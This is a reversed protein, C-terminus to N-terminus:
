YSYPVTTDEPGLNNGDLIFQVGVVGIDDSANASVIIIGSVTSGGTPATLTVAPPNTDPSAAKFDATMINGSNSINEVGVGSPGTYGDSNPSSTANFSRNNASGPYPDGTDGYDAVINTSKELEWLNDAQILAVKYHNAPNQGPFWEQRNDPKSEDIHWILLGEGPLYEDYTLPLKQRNEILFYESGPNGNTWLKFIQAGMQEANPISVGTQNASIVTPTNFGLQIKSWADLHAPQSGRVGNWLGNAMLSWAGVGKSSYDPDYLDPLGFIHGLEHATVGITMDGPTALYEPVLTYDKVYVGDVLKPSIAWKHSKFHNNNGSYESGRGTHIITLNDVYGDGDNDFLSFDISPNLLDVIEEVLRQANKPYTGMGEKGDIYYSSPQSATKWGIASPKHADNYPVLSLQGYSNEYYYNRVSNQFPPAFLLNDFLVPSSSDGSESPFNVMVALIELFGLTGGSTTSPGPATTPEPEIAVPNLIKTLQFKAPEDVGELQLATKNQLSYPPPIIGAKIEEYVKPHYDAAGAFTGLLGIGFTLITLRM